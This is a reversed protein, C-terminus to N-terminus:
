NIKELSDQVTNLMESPFRISNDTIARYGNIKVQTGEPLKLHGNNCSFVHIFKTVKYTGNKM